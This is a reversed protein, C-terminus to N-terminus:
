RRDDNSFANSGSRALTGYCGRRFVEAHGLVIPISFSRPRMVIRVVEERLKSARL